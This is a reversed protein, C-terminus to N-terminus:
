SGFTFAYARAGPSHFTITVIGRGTAPLHVVHYLRAPGITMSGDAAADETAAAGSVGTVSVTAQVPSDAALVLYVDRAEFSLELKDGATTETAYQPQFDWLGSVAFTNDNLSSPFSYTATYGAKMGEPSAFSQARDSGIYTEPTQSGSIPPPASSAAPSPVAQAGAEALLSAIEAETKAYDGEGFHESRIHGTADILYDAPWYENNYASWIAYDNDQVVPYTVGFRAIAAQVNATDHEFAFEPTHVGIVVFGDPGYKQYWGEVYPLTRICNICSYTWFDVLVVKGRLGAMTLPPSNLWTRDTAFEPALPGDPLGSTAKDDQLSGTGVGLEHLASQVPGTRELTQLTGTWDPLASTLDNSLATDVGLAMLGATALVLAGMARSGWRSASQLHLRSVASRGSLAIALLPLGAGISYAVVLLYTAGSGPATVALSTIAGLIPGACPTWVLGLGIGTVIGGAAGLGGSRAIRDGISPLGATLREFRNTLAPVLLTLGFLAVVVIATDRLTASPLHLAGIIQVSALTFFAFSVILGAIVLYPRRRDSGAGTALVIPLIPLVCPSVATVFGAIFAVLVLLAM